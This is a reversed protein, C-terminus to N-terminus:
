TDLPVFVAIWSWTSFDSLCICASSLLSCRSWILWLVSRLALSLSISFNTRSRAAADEAAAPASSSSASPGATRCARPSTAGRRAREGGGWVGGRQDLRIGLQGCPAHREGQVRTGSVQSRAARLSGVWRRAVIVPHATVALAGGCGGLGRRGSLPRGRGLGGLSARRSAPSPAPATCRRASPPPTARRRLTTRCARAAPHGDVQAIVVVIVSKACPRVRDTRM